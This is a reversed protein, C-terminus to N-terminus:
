SREHRKSIASWRRAIMPAVEAEPQGCDATFPEQLVAAEVFRDAPRGIPVEPEPQDEGPRTGATDGLREREVPQTFLAQRCLSAVQQEALERFELLRLV